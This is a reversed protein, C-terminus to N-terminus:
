IHILSLDDVSRSEREYSKELYASEDLYVDDSSSKEVVSIWKTYAGQINMIRRAIKLRQNEIADTSVKGKWWDAVNLALREMLLCQFVGCSCGDSQVM